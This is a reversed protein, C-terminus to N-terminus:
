ERTCACEFLAVSYFFFHFWILLLFVFSCFVTPFFRHCSLNHKQTFITIDNERYKRETQVYINFIRERERERESLQQINRKLIYLITYMSCRSRSVGCWHAETYIYSIALSFFVCVCLSHVCCIWNCCCFCFTCVGVIVVSSVCHSGVSSLLNSLISHWGNNHCHRHCYHPIASFGSLYVSIFVQMVFARKQVNQKKERERKERMWIMHAIRNNLNQLVITNKKTTKMM